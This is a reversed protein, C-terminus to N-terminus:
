VVWLPPLIFDTLQMLAAIDNKFRPVPTIFGNVPSYVGDGGGKLNIQHNVQAVDEDKSQQVSYSAMLSLDLGHCGGRTADLSSLLQNSTVSDTDGGQLKWGETDQGGRWMEITLHFGKLYPVMAPYTRTVYVLFGQNSLLEKHPLRIENVGKGTSLLEWWKKLIARLKAWKEISTLVCVGLSPVAHVIAGAWAGPQMSCPRAKRRADPIGLYSQKSALVHSAHWTLEKSPGTVREDDVFTFIDCAVRGDSQIKSLWSLCPNYGKTGPLNLRVHTWQFPNLEKGDLGFGEEHRDGRCVDEAVLALKISNYPSAAFGMLNRVWVAWRLGTEVDNDYLSSLDVGTFPVVSPHLPHNLLMDCVDRDTM